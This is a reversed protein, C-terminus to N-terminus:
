VPPASFSERTEGIDAAGMMRITKDGSLQLLWHPPVGEQDVIALAEVAINHPRETALMEDRIAKARGKPEPPFGIPQGALHWLLFSVFGKWNEYYEDSSAVHKWPM